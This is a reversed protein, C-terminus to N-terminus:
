RDNMSRKGKEKQEKEEQFDEGAINLFTLTTNVKLMESM